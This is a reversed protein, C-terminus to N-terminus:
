RISFFSGTVPDQVVTGTGCGGLAAAGFFSSQVAYGPAFAAGVGYGPFFSRQVGYGPFFNRQVHVGAFGPTFFGRQVGVGGGVFVNAGPTRVRVAAGPVNVVVNNRRVGRFFVFAEATDATLVLAALTLITLSFLTKISVLTKM